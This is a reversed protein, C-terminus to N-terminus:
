KKPFSEAARQKLAECEGSCVGLIQSDNTERGCEAQLRDREKRFHENEEGEKIRKYEELMHHLTIIEGSTLIFSIAPPREMIVKDAAREILEIIVYQDVRM